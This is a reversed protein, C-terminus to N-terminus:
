NLLISCVEGLTSYTVFIKHGLIYVLWIHIFFTFLGYICANAVNKIWASTYFEWVSRM